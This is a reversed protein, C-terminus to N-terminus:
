VVFDEIYINILDSQTVLSSDVSESIDKKNNPKSDPLPTPNQGYGHPIKAMDMHSKSWIAKFAEGLLSINKSNVLQIFYLYAKPTLAYWITRDQKIKNYNGKVILRKEFSKDIITRIQDKTFYPFLETFADLTNYTWCYGDYVHKENALNKQTWFALNQLFIAINVGFEKAVVPCFQHMM